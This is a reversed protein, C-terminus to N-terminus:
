KVFTGMPPEDVIAKGVFAGAGIMTIALFVIVALAFLSAIWQMLAM